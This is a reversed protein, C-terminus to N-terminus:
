IYIYIYIYLSLSLSLPNDRYIRLCSMHGIQTRANLKRGFVLKEIQMHQTFSVHICIYTYIHIYIYTHIHIYTYIHMHIYIYIYLSLSLSLSLSSHRLVHVSMDHSRDSHAGEIEQGSCAKRKRIDRSFYM